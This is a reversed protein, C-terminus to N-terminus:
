KAVPQLFQEKTFSQLDKIHDVTIDPSFNDLPEAAYKGQRVFVTTVRKGLIQKIAALISPKDDIMVYHDGPYRQMMDDLHEQKHIYLLVRGNVADALNSSIIKEAQFNLDGDSVIVTTGLTNLHQLTELAQPYLAKFFPYNDFISHAHRYTADDMKELSTEQRLRELTLPIDVVSKEKRVEEYIAWFRETLENGITAKLHTDLNEKVEDNALLTNDVDLWFVLKSM